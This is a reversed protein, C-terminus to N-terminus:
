CIRAELYSQKPRTHLTNSSSEVQLCIGLCDSNALPSVTVCKHLAQPTSMLVLDILSSAGDHGPHTPEDVVQVLSFSNLVNTLHMYNCNSFHSSMDINFFNSFYNSNLSCLLLQHHHDILLVQISKNNPLLISIFILELGSPGYLVVKFSLNCLATHRWWLSEQRVQYYLLKDEKDKYDGKYSLIGLQAVYRHSWIPITTCEPTCPTPRSLGRHVGPNRPSAALSLFTAM